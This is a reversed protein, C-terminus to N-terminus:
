QISNFLKIMNKFMSEAAGNIDKLDVKGAVVLDKAYAHCFGIFQARPDITARGGGKFGQGEVVAKIKAGRDTEEITYHLENGPNLKAPMKEKSGIQGVDGNDLEVKHYYIQGGKPNNWESVFTTRTIKAKKEM